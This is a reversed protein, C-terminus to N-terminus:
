QEYNEGTENSLNVIEKTKTCMAVGDGIPIITSELGETHTITHLFKRMNRYITRHRKEIEEFDKVIDGNQLVNDAIIVGGVNLLRLCEPLFNIYQSKAADIFILDYRDNLTKLINTANGELLTIKNNMNLKEFNKKAKGIMLDFREITTVHGDEDILSAMFSSSFGICCGIELIQKPKKISIITALFRATEKPIIPFDNNFGYEHLEGIEGDIDEYLNNIYKKVDNNLINM